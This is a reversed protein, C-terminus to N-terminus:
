FFSEVVSSIFMFSLPFSIAGNANPAIAIAAVIAVLTGAAACFIYSPTVTLM